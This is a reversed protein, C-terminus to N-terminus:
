KTRGCHGLFNLLEELNRLLEDTLPVLNTAKGQLELLSREDSGGLKKDPTCFGRLFTKASSKKEVASVRQRTEERM